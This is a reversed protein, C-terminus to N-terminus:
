SLYLGTRGGTQCVPAQGISSVTSRRFLPLLSGVLIRMVLKNMNQKYCQSDTKVLDYSVTM